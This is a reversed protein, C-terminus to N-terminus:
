MRHKQAAKISNALCCAFTFALLEVLAVAIGAWRIIDTNSAWFSRFAQQCGDTYAQTTPCSDLTAVGSTNVVGCCSQPIFGTPWDGPGDRGCCKFAIQVGDMPYTFNPGSRDWASGVLDSMANLFQERQVFVWVVLAVQLCFLIFMFVSYMYICCTNEKIAGCCGCFSILFVICGLVIILIPLIDPNVYNDTLSSFSDGMNGLMIAGFTILLIGIVLIALNFFFLIYKVMGACCNM